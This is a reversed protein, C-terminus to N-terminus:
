KNLIIFRDLEIRFAINFGEIAIVAYKKSTSHLRIGNIWQKDTKDKIECNVNKHFWEEYGNMNNRKFGSLILDFEKQKLM